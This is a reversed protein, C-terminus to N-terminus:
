KQILILKCLPLTMIGELCFACHRLHRLLLMECFLLTWVLVFHRLYPSNTGLLITSALQPHSTKFGLMWHGVTICLGCGTWKMSLFWLSKLNLKESHEARAFSFLICAERIYEQLTLACVWVGSLTTHTDAWSVLPSVFILKNSFPKSCYSWGRCLFLLPFLVHLVFLLDFLIVHSIEGGQFCLLDM